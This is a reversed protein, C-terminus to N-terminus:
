ITDMFSKEVRSFLIVGLTFIVITVLWSIGYYYWNMEGLGLFAYRFNNIIPTMPNLMYFDMYKAPVINIDYAVPTGYMWLQIGFGVLMALDRYKITLASIIVGCGLGLLAMHLVFLPTLLVYINPTVVGKSFYYCLFILFMVGQIIFPIVNTLVTSIPMVLRPFYVKGLIGVNGIFTNATQTLCGAFYGWAVTGSLFFLFSPVGKASLGALSGFIVTFVVTTLLPQVIAWAPGLITQKYLAVFNRRVFLLMLDRYKWLERLNIDFWGNRATITTEFQEGSAM